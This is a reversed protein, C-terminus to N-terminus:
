ELWTIMKKGREEQSSTPMKKKMGKKNEVYDKWSCEKKHIGVVHHYESRVKALCISCTDLINLHVKSIHLQLHWSSNSTFLCDKCSYDRIGNHVAKVHKKVANPSYFFKQCKQCQLSADKKHFKKHLSFKISSVMRGCDECAKMKIRRKKDKPLRSHIQEHKEVRKKTKFCKSCTTCPFMASSHDAAKHAKLYHRTALKKECLDCAFGGEGHTKLLHTLLKSSNSYSLNCAGCQVEKYHSERLHELFQSFKKSSKQCLECTYIISKKHEEKFHKEFEQRKGQFKGNKHYICVWDRNTNLGGFIKRYIEEDRGEDILVKFEARTKEDLNDLRKEIDELTFSSKAKRIFTESKVKFLVKNKAEKKWKVEKYENNAKLKTGRKARSRDILRKLQDGSVTRPVDVNKEVPGVAREPEQSNPEFEFGILDEEEEEHIDEQVFSFQQEIHKNSRAQKSHDAQIHEELQPQSLLILTCYPRPCVFM